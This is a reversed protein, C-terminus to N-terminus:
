FFSYGISLQAIFIHLAQPYLIFTIFIGTIAGYFHADHNIGDNSKRAAYSSYILYLVGFLVAPIPFPIPFIILKDLPSFLIYGFLVACVAGSAGLSNYWFDDKHKIVTPLDSLILGGVYLLAFQWHGIIKELQFAFFFYSLMNFILHSWDKHVLGSTILQYINKGKAVSYPHLMFKGYTDAHYFAYISTVITFIFIITAVPTLQLYDQM